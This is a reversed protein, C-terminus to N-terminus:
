PLMKHIQTASVSNNVAEAVEEAEQSLEELIVGISETEERTEEALKRIEEAVM